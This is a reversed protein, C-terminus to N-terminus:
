RRVYPDGVPEGDVLLQELVVERTTVTAKDLEVEGMKAADRAVVPPQYRNEWRKSKADYQLWQLEIASDDRFRGVIALWDDGQRRVICTSRRCLGNDKLKEYIEPTLPADGPTLRM